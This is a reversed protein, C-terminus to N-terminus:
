GQASGLGEGQQGKACGSCCRWGEEGGKVKQRCRGAMWWRRRAHQGRGCLGLGGHRASGQGASCPGEQRWGQGLAGGLERRGKAELDPAPKRTGKGRAEKKQASAPRSLKLPRRTTSAKSDGPKVENNDEGSRADYHGIAALLQKGRSEPTPPKPSAIKPSVKGVSPVRLERDIDRKERRKEKAREKDYFEKIGGPPSPVATPIRVTVVPVPKPRKPKPSLPLVVGTPGTLRAQDREERAQGGEETAEAARPPVSDVVPGRTALFEVGHEPFGVRELGSAVAPHDATPRSPVTYLAEAEAHLGLLGEQSGQLAETLTAVRDFEGEPIM